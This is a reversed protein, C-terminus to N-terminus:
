SMRRSRRSRSRPSTRSRITHIKRYFSPNIVFSSTVFLVTSGDPPSKAGTASAVNSAGSPINEVYFQGGLSDSLKRVLIRGLIDVSGGPQFPVIIRVARNPYGESWAPRVAALAVTSSALGLFQRRGLHRRGDATTM